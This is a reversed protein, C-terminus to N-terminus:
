ADYETRNGRSRAVPPNLHNADIPDHVPRSGVRRARPQVWLPRLEDLVDGIHRPGPLWAPQPAGPRRLNNTPHCTM